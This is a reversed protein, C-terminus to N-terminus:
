APLAVCRVRLGLPLTSAAAVDVGRLTPLGLTTDISVHELLVPRDQWARAQGNSSGLICEHRAM